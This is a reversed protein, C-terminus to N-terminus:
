NLILWFSKAEHIPETSTHSVCVAAHIGDDILWNTRLVASVALAFSFNTSIIEEKDARQSLFGSNVPPNRDCIALLASSQHKETALEFSSNYLCNQWYNSTGHWEHTIATIPLLMHVQIYVCDDILGLSLSLVPKQGGPESCVRPASPCM